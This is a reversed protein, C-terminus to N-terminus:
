KREKFVALVRTGLVNNGVEELPEPPNTVTVDVLSYAGVRVCKITDEISGNIDNLLEYNKLGRSRDEFNQVTYFDIFINYNKDANIPIGFSKNILGGVEGTSVQGKPARNRFTIEQNPGFFLSGTYNSYPKAINNSDNLNTLLSGLLNNTNGM